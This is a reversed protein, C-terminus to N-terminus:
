RASINTWKFPHNKSPKSNNEEQITHNQRHISEIKYLYNNFKEIRQRKEIENLKQNRKIDNTINKIGECLEETIKKLLPEINKIRDFIHRANQIDQDIKTIMEKYDYPDDIEEDTDIIEFFMPQM